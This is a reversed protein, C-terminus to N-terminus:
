AWWGTNDDYAIDLTETDYITLAANDGELEEAGFPTLNAVNNTSGVNTVKHPEGNTGEPLLLTIDAIDTDCYVIEDEFKISYPSMASTVHVTGKIRGESQVIGTIKLIKTVTDWFLHANDETLHGDEAFPISGNLFDTSIEEIKQDIEIDLLNAITVLSDLFNLWEEIVADSWDPQLEKLAVASLVSSRLRDVTAPDPM